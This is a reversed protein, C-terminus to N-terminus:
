ASIEEWGFLNRHQQFCDPCIWVKKSDAYYGDQLDSEAASFRDWCLECHEHGNEEPDFALRRFKLGHLYPKRQYEFDYWAQKM